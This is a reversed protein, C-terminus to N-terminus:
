VANMDLARPQMSSSRACTLGVSTSAICRFHLRRDMARTAIVPVAAGRFRHRVPSPSTRLRRGGDHQRPHAASAPIAGIARLQLDRHHDCPDCTRRLDPHCPRAVRGDLDVQLVLLRRLARLFFSSVSSCSAVFAAARLALFVRCFARRAFSVPSRAALSASRASRGRASSRSFMSYTIAPSRDAAACARLWAPDM